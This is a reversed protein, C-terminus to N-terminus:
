SGFLKDFAGAPLVGNLLIERFADPALNIGGIHCWGAFRAPDNVFALADRRNDEADVTGNAPDLDHLVSRWFGGVLNLCGNVHLDAARM